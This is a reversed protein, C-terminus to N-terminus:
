IEERILDSIHEIIGSDKLEGTTLRQLLIDSM